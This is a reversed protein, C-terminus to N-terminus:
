PRALRLDYSARQVGDAGVAPRAIVCGEKAAEARVDPPALRPDDEFLMETVLTSKGDAEVHVHVHAPLTSKPYGAPRITKLAFKGDAGTKVWGFLRAHKVDGDFCHPRDKAYWGRADTHYAYVMANAIPAGSADTVTVTAELPTGPEGPFALAVAGVPAHERMLERFRPDGHMDEYRPDVLAAPGTTKGDAIARRIEALRPEPVRTMLVDSSARQVGKADRTVASILYNSRVAQARSEPTLVPDDEFVIETIRPQFGPAFVEYHIHQPNRTNPYSAPRITTLEFKGEYDTRLLGAIRPRSNDGGPSAATPESYLGRSDAQYAFLLADMIPKGADDVVRGTVVMPEGPEGPPPLTAKTPTATELFVEVLAPERRRESWRPDAYADKPSISKSEVATRLSEALPDPENAVTLALAAVLLLSM